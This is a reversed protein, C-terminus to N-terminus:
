LFLKKCTESSIKTALEKLQEDRTMAYDLAFHSERHRSNNTVDRLEQKLKDNEEQLTVVLKSTEKFEKPNPNKAKMEDMKKYLEEMESELGSKGELDIKLGVIEDKLKANKEELELQRERSKESLKETIALESQVQELETKLNSITEKGDAM